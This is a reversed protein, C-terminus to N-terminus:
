HVLKTKRHSMVFYEHNKCPYFKENEKLNRYTSSKKGKTIHDSTLFIYKNRQFLHTFFIECINQIFFYKHFIQPDMRFANRKRALNVPAM